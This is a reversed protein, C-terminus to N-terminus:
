NQRNKYNHYGVASLWASKSFIMRRRSAESMERPDSEEIFNEELEAAEMTVSEMKHPQQKKSTFELLCKELKVQSPKKVNGKRIEAIIGAFYYHLPNFENPLEEMFIKWRQFERSGVM